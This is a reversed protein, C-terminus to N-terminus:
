IRPKPYDKWTEAGEDMETPDDIDHDLSNIYQDLYPL